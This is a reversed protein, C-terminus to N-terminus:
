GSNAPFGATTPPFDPRDTTVDADYSARRYPMRDAIGIDCATAKYGRSITISGLRSFYM